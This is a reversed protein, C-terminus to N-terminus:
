SFVTKFHHQYTRQAKVINPLLNSFEPNDNALKKAVSLTVLPEALVVPVKREAYDMLVEMLGDNQSLNNKSLYKPDGLLDATIATTLLNDAHTPTDRPIQITGLDPHGRVHYDLTNKIM